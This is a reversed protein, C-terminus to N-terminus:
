ELLNLKNNRILALIEIAITNVVKETLNLNHISSFAHICEHILVEMKRTKPMKKQLYITDTSDDYLGWCESNDIVLEDKLVIKISHGAVIIEKPLKM